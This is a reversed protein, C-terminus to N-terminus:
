LIKLVKSGIGTHHHNLDLFRNCMWEHNKARLKRDSKDRKGLDIHSVEEAFVQKATESMVCFHINAESEEMGATEDKIKACRQDIMNLRVRHKHKINTSYYRIDEAIDLVAPVTTVKNLGQSIAPHKYVSYTQYYSDDM